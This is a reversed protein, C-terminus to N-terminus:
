KGQFKAVEGKPGAGWAEGGAFVVVNLNMTGAPSWTIGDKSIEAGSPGVAIFGSGGWVVASRYGNIGETALKWSKGQDLSYAAIREARNPLEYDGGVAVIADGNRALSFIGEPAKGNLIPTEVVTWNKGLDTSHFVRAAPGGTGFYLESEGYLILCSNSAAFAGEKPLAAPMNDPVIEEWHTGDTTHIILFKGEVPDSLAFCETWTSCAIADLFFDKRTDRYQLAWTIGGDVTKFIGSKEGEGSAMVYAVGEDFARVGRLDLSEGGSIHKQEWNKGSDTSRLIVGNSGSAWITTRQEKGSHTVVSLARLNSDLGGTLLAWSLAAASLSTFLLCRFM